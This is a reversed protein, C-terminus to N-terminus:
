DLVLDFRAARDAAAGSGTALGTITADFAGLYGQLSGIRGTWSAFATRAALPRESVITVHLAGALREAAERARDHADGAVILLNGHSEYSVRPVPDGPALTALAALASMKPACELARSSWGQRELMDLGHREGGGTSHESAPVSVDRTM